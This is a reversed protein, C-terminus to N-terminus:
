GGFANLRQGNAMLLPLVDAAPFIGLSGKLCEQENFHQANGERCVESHLLFPVPHWTPHGVLAPLSCDGAIALVDAGLGLLESVHQDFEHLTRCKLEFDGAEAARAPKVYQLVFLDFADWQERIEATDGDLAGSEFVRAGAAGAVRALWSSPEAVVMTRVGWVRELPPLDALTEGSARYLLPDYGLLALAGAPGSPTLGRAAPLTLGTDSHVALKDLNPIDAKELESRLTEHRHLGGLGEIVCLLTKTTARTSLQEALALDM